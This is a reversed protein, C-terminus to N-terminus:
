DSCVRHKIPREGGPFAKSFSCIPFRVAGATPGADQYGWPIGAARQLESGQFVCFPFVNMSTATPVWSLTDTSQLHPFKTTLCPLCTKGVTSIWGSGPFLIECMGAAPINGALLVTLESGTWPM